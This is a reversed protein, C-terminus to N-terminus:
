GHLLDSNHQYSLDSCVKNRGTHKARYLADDAQSLLADLNYNVSEPASVGISVTFRMPMESSQLLIECDEVSSRLREAVVVAGERDTEPLLIAFEEGGIRGEIDAVRLTKRFIDALAVLVRDGAKHGYTDNIMKFNDIDLMLITFNHGYRSAKKIEREALEMFYGRNNLGTLYDQRAQLELITLLAKHETINRSIEMIAVPRNDEDRKVAWRSAVVIQSGNKTTYKLEGEWQGTRFLIDEIEEQPQPFQTQLLRHIKQNCAEEQSWGYTREAGRNWFTVRYDMDRVIIADHALEILEAQDHLQKEALKRESIDTHTGSMMLPTGDAARSVVKGHTLIYKWEGSKTRIRLEVQHCPIEGALHLNISEIAKALDDSHVHNHWNDISFDGEGPEYGLMSEFRDSVIFQRSPLEWDWFGQESGELVRKLRAESEQLSLPEEGMKKNKM